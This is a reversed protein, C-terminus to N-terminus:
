REVVGVFGGFLVGVGIMIGGRGMGEGKEEESDEDLEEGGDEREV